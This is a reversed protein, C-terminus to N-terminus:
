LRFKFYKGDWTPSSQISTLILPQVQLLDLPPPEPAPVLGAPPVACDTDADPDPVADPDPFADPNPEPDPVADPEPVADPDLDRDSDSSPGESNSFLIKTPDRLREM